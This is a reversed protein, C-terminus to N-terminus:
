FDRSGPIQKCFALWIELHWADLIYRKAFITLPQFGNVIKTFLEMKSIQSYESYAKTVFYLGRLLIHQLIISQRGQNFCRSPNVNLLFKLFKDSALTKM